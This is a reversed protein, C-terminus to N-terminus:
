KLSPKVTLAYIMQGFCDCLIEPEQKLSTEVPKKKPKSDHIKQLVVLEYFRFLSTGKKVKTTM